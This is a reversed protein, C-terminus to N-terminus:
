RGHAERIHPPAHSRVLDAIPAAIHPNAAIFAGSDVTAADRVLDAVGGGAERVLLMGAAVDWPALHYEWFADLRGCAVWALDVVAAGMRRIGRVRSVVAGVAAAYAAGHVDRDYPYGTGIVCEALTARSSVHIRREGLWAGRGAAASFVERRTVDVVAGAVPDDDDWVAVSVGVHPIGHLFNVTGDLPDVIWRRGGTATAGGSEEALIADAPRHETILELIAEEAARDVESVPDVAGKLESIVATGFRERVVEAGALAAAVALDRDLSLDLSRDPSM